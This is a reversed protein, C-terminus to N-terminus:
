ETVTTNEGAFANEKLFDVYADAPVPKSYYYGQLYDCGIESLLRVMEATEVGEVVIKKRLSKLMEITHRLIIFAEGSEMAPWLISKDIKVTDTPLNILYNATSFGTGYDDMSFTVGHAILQKMNKILIDYNALGATETIEFNILRPDISYEDMIEIFQSALKEQLCQIVSLNVEIYEVGLKQACGSKLFECVSRFALEGIQLILGNAEALPIFEEPSIFGLESDRMRILAEASIFRGSQVDYLPQYYMEFSNNIICQNIDALIRMERKKAEIAESTAAAVPINHKITYRLTYDISDIVDKVSEAFDPYAFTCIYPTVAADSGNIKLPSDFFESILKVAEERSPSHKIDTIVVFTWDGLFYFEKTDLKSMLQGAIGACLRNSEKLGILQTFYNLGDPRFAVASFSRRHSIFSDITIYFAASNSCGTSSDIYDAPNELSILFMVLSLAIAFNGIIQEPLILQVITAVTTFATFIVIAINQAPKLEKRYRIFLLLSYLLIMLAMIPLSLFLPGHCYNMNEDFYIILKTWPTTLLGIVYGATIVCALVRDMLEIHSRKTIAIVYIMYMIAIFDYALLYGIHITYNLWLPLTDAANLTKTTIIHMVASLFTYFMMMLFLTNSPTHFKRRACYLGMLVCLLAVTVYEYETVYDIGNM